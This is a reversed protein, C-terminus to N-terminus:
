IEVLLKARERSELMPDHGMSDAHIVFQISKPVTSKTIAAMNAYDIRRHFVQEDPNDLIVM